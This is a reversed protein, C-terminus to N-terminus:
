RKLLHRRRMLLLEQREGLKFSVAMLLALAYLPWAVWLWEHVGGLAPPGKAYINGSIGPAQRSNIIVFFQLYAYNGAADTAQLKVTYSGRYGGASKYTHTIDFQKGNARSVISTQGDGWDVNLAYPATGGSFELPWQVAQGVYYGKYIFATKIALPANRKAPEQPAPTGPVTPQNVPPDYYVTMLQVLPGPDDTINFAQASIRNAGPFLDVEPDFLGNQCIASGSMLDNRFIEVYAANAPCTGAVQIPVASFHQGAKLNTITPVGTVPPGPVKADVTVDAAAGFTWAALYVGACLLLFLVLPYPLFLRRPRKTSTKSARKKTKQRPM